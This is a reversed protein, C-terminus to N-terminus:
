FSILRMIIKGCSYSYTGPRTSFESIFCEAAEKEYIHTTPLNAELGLYEARCEVVDNETHACIQM